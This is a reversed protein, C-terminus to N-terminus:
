DKKDSQRKPAIVVSTMMPYPCRCGVGGEPIMVLGGAPILGLWCRPRTISSLDVMQGSPLHYVGCTGSRGFLGTASGILLSCSKHREIEEISSEKGSLLEFIWLKNQGHGVSFYVKGGVIVPHQVSQNHAATLGSAKASWRSEGTKSNLAMFEYVADRGRRKGKERHGAVALATQGSHLVYLCTEAQITMPKRWAEQGTEVNLAVLEYGKPAEALLMRGGTRKGKELPNIEAFFVHEPGVCITSNVIGSKSEYRWQRTETKVDVAFLDGSIVHPTIKGWGSNVKPRGNKSSTGGGSKAQPDVSTGFLRGKRTAIYGWDSKGDPVTLTKVTKGTAPDVALCSKASTLFLYEEGLCAPGSFSPVGSRHFKPVSIEWIATGNYADVAMVLDDGLVFMRGDKFLPGAVNNHYGWQKELSPAGIWQLEFDKGVLTDNSSLSNGADAYLHTWDGAGDLKGRCSQGVGKASVSWGPLEKGWDKVAQTSGQVMLVGGSPRTMRFAEKASFKTASPSENLLVLNAFFSSYATTDCNAPLNRIVIQKGYLGAKSLRNRVEEVKGQDPEVCVVMVGSQRALEALRDGTGAGLVLCFGKKTKV